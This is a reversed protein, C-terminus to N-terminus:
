VLFHEEGVRAISLIEIIKVWKGGNTKIILVPGCHMPFSHIKPSPFQYRLFPFWVAVSIPYEGTVFTEEAWNEIPQRGM